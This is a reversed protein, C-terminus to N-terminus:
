DLRMYAAVASDHGHDGHMRDVAGRFARGYRRAHNRAGGEDKNGEDKNWSDWNKQVFDKSAIALAANGVDRFHQAMGEKKTMMSFAHGAIAALGSLPAGQYEPMEGPADDNTACAIGLVAGTAGSVFASVASQMGREAHKKLGTLKQKLGANEEKVEELKSM